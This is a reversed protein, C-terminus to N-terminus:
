MFSNISNFITCILNDSFSGDRSYTYSYTPIAKTHWVLRIIDFHYLSKVICRFYNWRVDTVRTAYSQWLFFSKLHLLVPRISTYLICVYKYMCVDLQVTTNVKAPCYLTTCARVRYTSLFNIRRRHFFFFSIFFFFIRCSVDDKAIRLKAGPYVYRRPRCSCGYRSNPVPCQVWGDPKM